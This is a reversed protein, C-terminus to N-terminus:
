AGEIQVLTLLVPNMWRLQLLLNSEFSQQSLFIRKGGGIIPLQATIVSSVESHGTDKAVIQVHWTGGLPFDLLMALLLAPDAIALLKCEEKPRVVISVVLLISEVQERRVFFIFNYLHDKSVSLSVIRTVLSSRHNICSQCSGSDRLTVIM